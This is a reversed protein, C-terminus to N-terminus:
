IWRPVWYLLVYIPLWAIVVFSWYETNDEVDSFQDEQIEHTYLWASQVVTDGLDTILHSSHLIMLMWIVSGYADHDWRVGLHAFEVGRLAVLILGLVAMLLTGTRVGRADHQRAKRSVWLNPLASALLSVTFISSWFLGPLADGKPPWAPSMSQLYLYVGIALAFATGEILMFGINGWWVLNRAGMAGDPLDDLDGIVTEALPATM